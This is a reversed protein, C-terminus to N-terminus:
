IDNEYEEAKKIEEPTLYKQRIEKMRGPTAFIDGLTHIWENLENNQYIFQDYSFCAWGHGERAAYEEASMEKYPFLKEADNVIDEPAEPYEQLFKHM